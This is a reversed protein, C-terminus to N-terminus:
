EEEERGLESLVRQVTGPEAGVLAALLELDSRRVTMAADGRRRMQISGLYRDIVDAVGEEAQGVAELDFVVEPGPAAALDEQSPLVHAPNVGYLEALSFLRAVSLTREGREYAGLVSAKFEDGSQAEVEHLSWGRRRRAARLRKGLVQDFSDQVL